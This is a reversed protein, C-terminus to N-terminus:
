RQIRTGASRRAAAYGNPLAWVCPLMFFAASRTPREVKACAERNM